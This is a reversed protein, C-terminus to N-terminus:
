QGWDFDSSEQGWDFDSSEQGWDFDSSEQGWDFDSSEQGWDFDSSEQGWDFDSSEQGWDFDSSEQGWDFDSSEQGWDFDSSEQGWDFDSSEQGWDFDSSEQGWDFDSSEQGWDIDSSEQGGILTVADKLRVALRVAQDTSTSTVDPAYYALEFPTSAESDESAMSPGALGLSCAVVASALAAVGAKQIRSMWVQEGQSSSALSSSASPMVEIADEKVASAVGAVRARSSVRMSADCPRCRTAASSQLSGRPINASARTLM